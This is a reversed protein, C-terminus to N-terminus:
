RLRPDYIVDVAVQSPVSRGDIEGPEFRIKRFAEAALDSVAAPVNSKAVEVSVVNGFEDIWLKLTVAGIVSRAVKKPVDLVPQSTPEPAKSLQDPTYFAPAPVPVLNAGRALQQPAVPKEAGEPRGPANVAGAPQASVGDLAAAPGRAPELRVELVRAPESAQGSRAGLRQVAASSAGFYPLFFLGAHLLCSVALAAYLRGWATTGPAPGSRGASASLTFLEVRSPGSM